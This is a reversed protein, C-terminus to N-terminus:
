SRYVCTAGARSIELRSCISYSRILAATAAGAGCGVDILTIFPNRRLWDLLMELEIINQLLDLCKFHHAPFLVSFQAAIHKMDERSLRKSIKREDIKMYGSTDDRRELWSHVGSYASQIVPHLSMTM